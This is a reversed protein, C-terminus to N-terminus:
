ILLASAAFYVAYAAATATALQVALSLATLRWGVQGAMSAVTAICASYIATFVLLALAAPVSLGSLLPVAGLAEMFGWVVEKFIYGAILSTSVQWPVGLPALLAGFARGAEALWSGSADVVFGSPGFHTLPWLAAPFLAILLGAKALFSKFDLWVKLAYIRANPLMLPTPPLGEVAPVARLLRRYAFAAAFVVAASVAYPIFVALPILYPRSSFAVAAIAVFLSLRASCPVYPVLLATMLRNGRGWMVRVTSLAPVNCASAVMLCLLGRGPVGLSVLRSELSRGLAGIVGSEEYLVVISVAILIYPLFEVLASVGLWLGDALFSSLVPPLGASAIADAVADLAPDLYALLGPWPGAGELAAFMALVAAVSLALLAALALPPRSFVAGALRAAPRVPIDVAKVPTPGDPSWGELFRALESLGARRVASTYFVPVGMEASLEEASLQPAGLDVMNLVFAVPRRRGIYEVLALAEKLAHPAGVVVVGDYDGELAERLALVEDEDKPSYPNFVGPLDVIEVKGRLVGSNVELTKGPYNATKVYRGTLAYFLTSKGVNPPGLLAIRRAM